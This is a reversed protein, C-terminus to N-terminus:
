YFCYLFKMRPLMITLSQFEPLNMEDAVASSAAEEGVCLKCREWQLVSLSLTLPNELIQEIRCNIYIWGILNFTYCMYAFANM